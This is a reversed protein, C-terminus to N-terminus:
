SSRTRATESFFFREVLLLYGTTVSRGPLPADLKTTM